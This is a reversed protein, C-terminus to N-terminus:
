FISYIGDVFVSPIAQQLLAVLDGASNIKQGHCVFLFTFFM